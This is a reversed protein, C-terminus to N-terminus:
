MMYGVSVVYAVAFLAALIIVVGLLITKIVKM